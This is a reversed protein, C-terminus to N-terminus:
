KIKVIKRVMSRLPGKVWIFKYGEPPQVSKVKHLAKLAKEREHKNQGIVWNDLVAKDM